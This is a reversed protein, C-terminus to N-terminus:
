RKGTRRSSAWAAQTEIWTPQLLLQVKQMTGATRPGSTLRRGPSMRAPPAPTESGLTHDLHREEALVDVGVSAVKGEITPAARQEGFQQALHSADLSDAPDTEGAGMRGVELALHGRGHGFRRGNALLQM